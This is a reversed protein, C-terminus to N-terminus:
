LCLRSTLRARCLLNFLNLSNIVKLVWWKVTLYFSFLGLLANYFGYVLNFTPPCQSLSHSTDTTQGPFSPAIKTYLTWVTDVLSCRDMGLGWYALGTRPRHLQSLWLTDWPKKQCHFVKVLVQLQCVIHLNLAFGIMWCGHFLLNIDEYIYWNSFYWNFLKLKKFGKGKEVGLVM